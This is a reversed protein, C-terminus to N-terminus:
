LRLVLYAILIGAGVIVITVTTNFVIGLQIMRGALPNRGLAEIGKNVARSFILFGFLFSMVLVVAAIVYKFVQLPEEYTAITSLHLIDFLSTDISGKVALYHSDLTVPIKGTQHPKSPTFDKLAAGIVYGSKTAKMGIGPQLSTTVADGKKIAGNADSVLVDVQGNSIVPYSKKPGNTELSIAPHDTVVGVILPDYPIHSLSYGQPSFSVIDGDRVSSDLIPLYNAIGSTTFSAAQVHFVGGMLFILLSLVMLASIKRMDVTFFAPHV